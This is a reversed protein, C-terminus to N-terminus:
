RGVCGRAVAAIGSDFDVRLCQFRNERAAVDQLVGHQHQHLHQQGQHDGQQQSKADGTEFHNGGDPDSDGADGDAPTPNLHEEVGPLRQHGRQKGHGRDDYVAESKKEVLVPQPLFVGAALEFLGHGQDFAALLVQVRDDGGNRVDNEPQIRGATDGVDARGHFAVVRKGVVEDTHGHQVQHV